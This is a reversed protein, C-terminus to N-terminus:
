RERMSENAAKKLPELLYDIVRRSGTRIEATVNMGPSISVQKGEVRITRQELAIIAPFSAVKKEDLVADSSVFDVRGRLTGYRTFPFTQLKIVAEQGSNVFGIDQNDISVEASIGGSDPVVVMLVQAETVVGGPTHVALQQVVGDVPARLVTQRERESAKSREQLSGALKLGAQALRDRLSHTTETEFAVKALMAEKLAAQAEHLKSKQVALDRELEIRERTRDEGAHGSIFGQKSLEHIDHERKRAMPAVLELKDVTERATALEAQRREIESGLKALRASIDAWEAVLQAAVPAREAESWSAPLRRGLMGNLDRVAVAVGTGHGIAELLVTARVQESTSARVQEDASIKDASANTSDLEILPQGARVRDGDHVLIARVLSRELPQITKTRDSVVVRGSAVAVVDIYGFWSWAVGCLFIATLLYATRRYAPHPPTEQISLAAPLFAIEHALRQPGVIEGRQSWAALLVDKYRRALGTQRVNNGADMLAIDTAM